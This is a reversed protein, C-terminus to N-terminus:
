AVHSHPELTLPLGYRDFLGLQSLHDFGARIDGIHVSPQTDYYRGWEHRQEGLRQPDAACLTVPRLGLRRFSNVLATNGTFTVWQLGRVALLWTVTIISLRASGLSCAALNGVEVIQQRDPQLGSREGVLQEIPADLYQELFLRQEAALRVGAAACLEGDPGRLGWLEPMFQRVEAGHAELFRQQIFSELAARQPEDALQRQLALPASAAHGFWLPSAFNWDVAPM